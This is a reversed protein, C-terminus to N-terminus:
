VRVIPDFLKRHEDVAFRDTMGAIYDCVVRHVGDREIRGQYRPPLQCRSAVYSTSSTACSAAPRTAWGCWATTATCTGTAPVGEARPRAAAMEDSYASSGGARAACTRRGLRRAGRWTRSPADGILTAASCRDIIRRVVQHRVIREDGIGARPCRTTRRASSRRGRPDARRTFM